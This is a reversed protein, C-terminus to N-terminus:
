RRRVHEVRKVKDFRDVIATDNGPGGDITDPKGNRANIVDDGDAACVFDGGRARLRDNGATGLITCASVSTGTTAADDTHIADNAATATLNVTLAGTRLPALTVKLPLVTDGPILPVACTGSCTTGGVSMSVIRASSATVSVVVSTAPQDGLSRVEGTVTVSRRPVPSDLEGFAAGVGAGHPRWAIRAIEDPGGDHLQTWNQRDVGIVDLRTPNEVFAIRTGDPSWAPATSGFPRPFEPTIAHADSGDVNMISVHNGLYTEENFAISNGDPSWAPASSYTNV